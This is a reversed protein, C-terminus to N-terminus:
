VVLADIDNEIIYKKANSDGENDINECLNNRKLYECNFLTDMYKLGMDPFICAIRSDKPINKQIYNEIAACVCGSSTGVCLGETKLLRYCMEFSSTDQVQVIEDVYEKQFSNSIFDDSISQILHEVYKMERGNFYNQYIGGVPEVGIIKTDTREKLYKGIGSITGGTGITAFLYDIKGGMQDFIEPATTLYHAEANYKNDFQNVYFSNEMNEALRRAVGVYGQPGSSEYKSPCVIVTAGFGKLLNIKEVPVDDFVTCIVNLGFKIAAYCIGLGTNGSTAEIVTGGKKVKGDRIANEIMNYAARDKVSFTPNYYELKAYVNHEFLSSLKVLPTNGLLEEKMLENM